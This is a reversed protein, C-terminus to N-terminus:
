VSLSNIIKLYRENGILQHLFKIQSGGDMMTDGVKPASLKIEEIISLARGHLKEWDGRHLRGGSIEKRIGGIIAFWNSELPNGRPDGVKDYILLNVPASLCLMGWEGHIQIMPEKTFINKGCEHVTVSSVADMFCILIPNIGLYFTNRCIEKAILNNKLYIVTDDYKINKLKNFIVAAVNTTGTIQTGKEDLFNRMVKDFLCKECEFQNDCLKYEIVQSTMWICKLMEYSNERYGADNNM